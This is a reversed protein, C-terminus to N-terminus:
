EKNAGSHRIIAGLSMGGVAVAFGRVGPELGPTVMIAVSSLFAVYTMIMSWNVKDAPRVLNHIFLTVMAFLASLWAAIFAHKELWDLM